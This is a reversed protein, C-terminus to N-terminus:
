FRASVYELALEVISLKRPVIFGVCIAGEKQISAWAAPVEVTDADLDGEPLILSRYRVKVQSLGRGVERGGPGMNQLHNLVWGVFTM